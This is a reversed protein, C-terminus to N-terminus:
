YEVWKRGVTDYEGIGVQPDFWLDVGNSSKGQPNVFTFGIYGNFIVLQTESSGKHGGIPIDVEGTDWKGDSNGLSGQDFLNQGNPELKIVLFGLAEDETQLDSDYVAKEENSYHIESLSRISSLISIAKADKAKAIENKLRPVLIVSLIAILAAIVVLEILTVGRKNM